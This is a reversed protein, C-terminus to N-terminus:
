ILRLPCHRAIHQFDQDCTLLACDHEICAAAIQCDVISAQIGKSRCQNGIQAAAIYDARTLEILPYPRLHERIERFKGPDRIGQLIEQLIVGLLYVAQRQRLLDALKAAQPDSTPTTRRLAHSWVSTDVVVSM